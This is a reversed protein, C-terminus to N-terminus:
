IVPRKLGIPLFPLDFMKTLGEEEKQAVWRDCSPCLYFRYEIGEHTRTAGYYFLGRYFCAPCQHENASFTHTM